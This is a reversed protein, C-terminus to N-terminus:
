SAVAKVEDQAASKQREYEDLVAMTWLELAERKLNLYQAGGYAMRTIRATRQRAFDERERDTATAAMKEREEIEHALVVSAGGPIGQTDLFETLTRRVDHMSWWAIGAEELLDRADTREPQKKPAGDKKLRPQWDAPKAQEVKDRGALRYLIRYVGSTTAHKKGDRESPFAWDQSDRNRNRERFRCVHKWAREPIPLVHARGGKMVDEAWVALMYGDHDPDPVVDHGLISLGATARQANLVLWWLGALTGPKTGAAKIARGPLPKDLYEEALLLSAVINQISPKRTKPKVEYPASLMAWWPDVKGLGSAGAHHRACWNLVSRTYTVAKIAPSTGANKVIWNRAAEIDGATLLAAPKRLVHKWCDRNFTTKIDKVTADSIRDKDRANDAIKDAITQDICRKFSWTEAVPRMVEVATKHDRGAGFYAALYPEVQLPDVEIVGKVEQGIKRADTPATIKRHDEKPYATGIVVSKGRHKVIWTVRRGRLRLVLGPVRVDHWQLFHDDGRKEAYAQAADQAQEVLKASILLHGAPTMRLGPRLIKYGNQVGVLGNVLTSTANLAEAHELDVYARM